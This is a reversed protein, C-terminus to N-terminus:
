RALGQLAALYAPVRAAIMETPIQARPGAEGDVWISAFSPFFYAKGAVANGGTFLFCLGMAGGPGKCRTPESLDDIFVPAGGPSVCGLYNAAASLGARINNNEPQARSQPTHATSGEGPKLGKRGFM